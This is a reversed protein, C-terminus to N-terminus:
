AEGDPPAGLWRRSAQQAAELDRQMAAFAATLAEIITPAQLDHVDAGHTRFLDRAHAVLLTVLKNDICALAFDPSGLRVSALLAYADSNTAVAFSFIREAKLLGEGAEFREYSRKRLGMRDAVQQVTMRRHQRIAKLVSSLVEDRERSGDSSPPEM